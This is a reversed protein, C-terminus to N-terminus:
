GSTWNFIEARIRYLFGRFVASFLRCYRDSGSGSGTEAKFVRFSGNRIATPGMQNQDTVLRHPPALVRRAKMKGGAIPVLLVRFGTFNSRLETMGGRMEGLPDKRRPHGAAPAPNSAARAPLFPPHTLLLRPQGRKMMM